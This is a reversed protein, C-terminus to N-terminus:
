LTRMTLRVPPRMPCNQRGVLDDDIMGIAEFLKMDNMTIGRKRYFTKLKKPYPLSIHCSDTGENRLVGSDPWHTATGTGGSSCRATKEDQTRLFPKDSRCARRSHSGSLTPRPVSQFSRWLVTLPFKKTLPTTGCSTLAKNRVIRCLYTRLDSPVEPPIRGWMEYYASNVCEEADEHQSLINMAVYQCLRDYKNKLETLASSDRDLFLRIISADDM